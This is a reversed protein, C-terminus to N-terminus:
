RHRHLNLIRTPTVDGTTPHSSTVRIFGAPAPFATATSVGRTPLRFLGAPAPFLFWRTPTTPTSSPVVGRSRPFPWALPRFMPRALFLGAFAPFALICLTVCSRRLFLGAYAPFVPNNGGHRPGGPSCGRMRPSPRDVVHEHLAASSCGRVRPSLHQSKKAPPIRKPVVGRVRPFLERLKRRLNIGPSCGRM